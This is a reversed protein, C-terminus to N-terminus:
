AAPQQAAVVVQQPRRNASPEAWPRDKRRLFPREVYRYSVAAMAVTLVVALAFGALGGDPSTFLWHWLYMGFSVKGVLVLPRTALPRAVSFQSRSFLTAILMLPTAVELPIVGFVFGAVGSRTM